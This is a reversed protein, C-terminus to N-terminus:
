TPRAAFCPSRYSDIHDPENQADDEVIVIATEPWFRSHTLGEVVLGVAYDNDAVMARPMVRGPATGATHNRDLHVVM